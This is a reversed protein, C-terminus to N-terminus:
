KVGLQRLIEGREPGLVRIPEADGGNYKKATRYSFAKVYHDVGPDFRWGEVQYLHESFHTEGEGWVFDACVLVPYASAGPVMWMARESVNTVAVYPLLDVIEGGSGASRYRLVALRDLTGSGGGSYRGSFFVWSGGNPLRLVEAEPELGFEYIVSPSGYAAHAALRYCIGPKSLVCLKAGSLPMGDADVRGAAVRFRPFVEAGNGAGGQGVCFVSCSLLLVAMVRRM